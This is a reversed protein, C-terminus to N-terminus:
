DRIAHITETLRTICGSLQELRSEVRVLLYLTVAAPFGVNSLVPIWDTM